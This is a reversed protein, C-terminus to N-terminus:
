FGLQEDSSMQVTRVAATLTLYRVVALSSRRQRRLNPLFCGLQIIPLGSPVDLTDFRTTLVCCPHNDSGTSSPCVPDRLLAFGFDTHRVSSTSLDFGKILGSSALIDRLMCHSGLEWNGIAISYVNSFPRNVLSLSHWPLVFLSGLNLKSITALLKNRRNIRSQSLHIVSLSRYQLLSHLSLVSSDHNSNRTTKKGDLRSRTSKAGVQAAVRRKSRRHATLLDRKTVYDYEELSLDLFLSVIQPGLWSEGM